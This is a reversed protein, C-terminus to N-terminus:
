HPLPPMVAYRATPVRGKGWGIAERYSGLLGREDLADRDALPSGDPVPARLPAVFLADAPCYAECLFCTQCDSQRAIVPLGDERRDFVQTPCVDICTDCTICREEDVVEIM